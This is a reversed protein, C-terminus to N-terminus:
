SWSIWAWAITFSLKIYLYAAFHSCGPSVTPQSAVSLKAACDDDDGTTDALHNIMQERLCSWSHEIRLHCISRVWDKLSITNDPPLQEVLQGSRLGLVCEYGCIARSSATVQSIFGFCNNIAGFHDCKSIQQSQKHQQFRQEKFWNERACLKKRGCDVQIFFPLANKHLNM